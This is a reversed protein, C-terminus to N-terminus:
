EAARSSVLDEDIAVHLVLSLILQDLLLEDIIQADVDTVATADRLSFDGGHPLHGVLLEGEVVSGTRHARGRNEMQVHGHGVARDLFVYRTQSPDVFDDLM